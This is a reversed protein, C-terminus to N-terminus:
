RESSSRKKCNASCGECGCSCDGRKKKKIIVAAAAVVAAAIIIIIIWDFINM